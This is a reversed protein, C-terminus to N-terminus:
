PIKLFVGYFKARDADQIVRQGRITFIIQNLDPSVTKLPKGAM